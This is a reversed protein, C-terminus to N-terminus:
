NIVIHKKSLNFSFTAVKHIRDRTDDLFAPCATADTTDSYCDYVTGNLAPFKLEQQLNNSNEQDTRIMLSLRAVLAYDYIDPITAKQTEMQQVTYYHTVFSPNPATSVASPRDVGYEIRMNEIGTLVPTDLHTLNGGGTLAQAIVRKYLTPANNLVGIYFLTPNFRSVVTQAPYNRATHQTSHYYITTGTTGSEGR